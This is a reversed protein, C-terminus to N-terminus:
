CVLVYAASVKCSVSVYLFSFFDDFINRHLLLILLVRLSSSRFFSRVIGISISTMMMTTSSRLTTMSICCSVRLDLAIYQKGTQVDCQGIDDELARCDEYVCKAHIARYWRNGFGGNGGM